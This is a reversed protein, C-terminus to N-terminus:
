LHEFNFQNFLGIRDNVMMMMMMVGYVNMTIWKQTSRKMETYKKSNTHTHNILFATGAAVYSYFFTGHIIWVCQVNVTFMYSSLLVFDSCWQLLLASHDVNHPLCLFLLNICVLSSFFVCVCLGHAKNHLM